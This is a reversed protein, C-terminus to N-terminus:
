CVSVLKNLLLETKAAAAAATAKPIVLNKVFQYLPLILKAM